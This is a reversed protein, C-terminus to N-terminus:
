VVKTPADVATAANAAPALGATVCLVVLLARMQVFYSAM